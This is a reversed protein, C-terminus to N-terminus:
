PLQIHRTQTYIKMYRTYTQLIREDRRKKVTVNYLEKELVKQTTLGGKDPTSLVYVLAIQMDFHLNGPMCIMLNAYTFRM